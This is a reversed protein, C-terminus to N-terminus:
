EDGIKPLSEVAVVTLQYRVVFARACGAQGQADTICYMNREVHLSGVPVNDNTAAEVSRGSATLCEGYTM